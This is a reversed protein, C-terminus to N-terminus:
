GVDNLAEIVEEPLVRIRWNDTIRRWRVSGDPGILLIAPRAIDRGSMGGHPHLVGYAEIVTRTEDALIPFDLGLKDAVRLNEAVPDVSVAV